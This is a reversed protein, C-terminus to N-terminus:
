YDDDDDIPGPPDIPNPNIHIYDDDDESPDELYSTTRTYSATFMLNSDEELLEVKIIPSVYEKKTM